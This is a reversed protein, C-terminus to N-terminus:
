KGELWEGEFVEVAPGSLYVEGQGDWELALTGGPFRIDIKEGVLDHLRAAVMIAAAGSGCALTAGAGREWVRAEILDRSLVHAVEFDVRNPFLEHNEVVPGIGELLYGAVPESSFHVAHPNGMSVCTVIVSRRGVDLPLDKIPPEAEVAVPIEAPAFRPVGMSTRVREVRGGTMTVEATLVGAATEITLSGEHLAALGREVAYKAVCRIGNGCMEAESGDPNFMRMRVDARKSPLVLLIGDAGVGFHRDCMAVALASWDREQGRPELLVFDNGTGHVKVFKM